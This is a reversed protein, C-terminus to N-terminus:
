PRGFPRLEVLLMSEWVALWEPLVDQSIRGERMKPVAGDISRACTMSERHRWGTAPNTRHLSFMISSSRRSLMTLLVAIDAVVFRVMPPM